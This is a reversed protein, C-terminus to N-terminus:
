QAPGFGGEDVAPGAVQSCYLKQQLVLLNLARDAIEADVDIISNGYGFL